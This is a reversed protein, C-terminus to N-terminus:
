FKHLRRRCQARLWESANSAIYDPHLYLWDETRDLWWTGARTLKVNSFFYRQRPQYGYCDVAPPRASNNFNWPSPSQRLPLIQSLTDREFGGFTLDASTFHRLTSADLPDIRLAAPITHELRGTHLRSEM